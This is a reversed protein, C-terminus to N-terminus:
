AAFGKRFSEVINKPGYRSLKDFENLILDRAERRAEQGDLGVFINMAPVIMLSITHILHASIIDARDPNVHVNFVKHAHDVTGQAKDAFRAIQTPVDEIKNAQYRDYVERVSQRAGPDPIFFNMMTRAAFPELRKRREEEPTRDTPQVDDILPHIEGSDHTILGKQADVMYLSLSPYTDEWNRVKRLAAYTHELNSEGFGEPVFGKDRLGKMRQVGHLAREYQLQQPPTLAKDYFEQAPPLLVGSLRVPLERSHLREKHGM